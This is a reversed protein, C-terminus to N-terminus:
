NIILNVTLFYKDTLYYEHIISLESAIDFVDMHISDIADALSEYKDGLQEIVDDGDSVMEGPSIMKSSVNSIIKDGAYVIQTAGKPTIEIVVKSPIM